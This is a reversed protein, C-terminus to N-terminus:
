YETISIHGDEDVTAVPVFHAPGGLEVFTSGDSAVRLRPDAGRQKLELVQRRVAPSLDELRPPAHEAHVTDLSPGDEAAESSTTPEAGSPSEELQDPDRGDEDAVESGKVVADARTSEGGSSQPQPGGDQFGNEATSPGPEAAPLLLVVFAAGTLAIACLVLLPRMPCHGM